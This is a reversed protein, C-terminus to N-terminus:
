LIIQYGKSGDAFLNTNGVTFGYIAKQEENVEDYDAFFLVANSTLTTVWADTMTIFNGSVSEIINAADAYYQEGAYDWLKLVYGAKYCSGDPVEFTKQDTIALNLFPSPSLLGSRINTYSTFRFGLKIVGTSTNVSRNILEVIASMGLAGGEQPLHKATVRIKDGINNKFATMFTSLSVSAKPTSFRELYRNARDAAIAAGNDAEQVGKFRLTTGKVEGYIALTDADAKFTKSRTFKQLGEIWNWEVKVVTQLGDKSIKWKPSDKLTIADDIEEVTATLDSQDLISLSILNDLSNKIIRVNNPVL